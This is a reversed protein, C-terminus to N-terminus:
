IPSSSTILEILYDGLVGGKEYIARRITNAHKIGIDHALAPISAYIKTTNEKVNTVRIPTGKGTSSAVMSIEIEETTFRPLGEFKSDYTLVRGKILELSGRSLHWYAQGRKIGTSLELEALNDYVELSNTKYNFVFISKTSERKAITTEGLVFNFTYRDNYLIKSHKIVFAWIENKTLGIYRGLENMSYFTTLEGTLEDRMVVKRNEKRLGEKYAHQINEGRTSWELNGPLNNHKNGDKHNVEYKSSPAPGHFALCILIHVGRSNYQKADDKSGSALYTGKSTKTEYLNCIRGIRKHRLTGLSSAQYNSYGPIERWEISFSAPDFVSVVGNSEM